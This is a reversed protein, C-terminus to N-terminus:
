QSRFLVRAYNFVNKCITQARLRTNGACTQDEIAVPKWMKPSFVALTLMKRPIQASSNVNRLQFCNPDASGIIYQGAAKEQQVPLCSPDAGEKTNPVTAGVNQIHFCNPGVSEKRPIRVRPKWIATKFVTLTLVKRSIQAQSKWMKSTFVTLFVVKATRKVLSKWMESGCVSLTLM